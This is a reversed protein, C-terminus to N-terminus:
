IIAKQQEVNRTLEGVYVERSQVEDNTQILKLM